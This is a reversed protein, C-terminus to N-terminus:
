EAPFQPVKIKEKSYIEQYNLSTSDRQQGQSSYKINLKIKAMVCTMRTHAQSQRRMRMDETPVWAPVKWNKEATTQRYIINLEELKQLIAM